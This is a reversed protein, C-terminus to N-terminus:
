SMMTMHKFPAGYVAFVQLGSWNNQPYRELGWKHSCQKFLWSMANKGLRKRAETLASNALLKEDALGKACINLRRAVEAIPENRFFAMGVVLWLVM